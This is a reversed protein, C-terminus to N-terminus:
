RIQHHHHLFTKNSIQNARMAYVCTRMRKRGEVAVSAVKAGDDQKLNNKLKQEVSGGGGDDNNNKNSPLSEGM